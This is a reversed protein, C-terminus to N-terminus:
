KTATSTATGAPKQFPVIVDSKFRQNRAARNGRKEFVEGIRPLREAVASLSTLTADHYTDHLLKVDTVRMASMAERVPTGTANLMTCYTKRLAHLGVIRGQDDKWPIAARALDRRVTRYDPITAFVRDTKASVSRLVEVLQPPLAIVDARRAKTTKARLQIFPKEADLRVDSWLLAKLESRRLGTLCAMLYVPWRSGSVDRLRVLEAPTLARKARRMESVDARAVHVLPNAALWPLPRQKTAWNCFALAM